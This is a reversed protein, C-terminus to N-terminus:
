RNFLPNWNKDHYLIKISSNPVGHEFAYALMLCYQEAVKNVKIKKKVLLENYFAKVIEPTNEADDCCTSFIESGIPLVESATIKVLPFNEKVAKIGKEHASLPAFVIYNNKSLEDLKIKKAVEIFQSGTGLFDDIFIFTNIGNKINNNIESPDIIWKNDCFKMTKMLRSIAYGSQSTDKNNKIVPVLRINCSKKEKLCNLLDVDGIPPPNNRFIDPISRSFLQFIMAETQPKSRFILNDLICAAFYKEEDTTFNKLWLNIKNKDIGTWIQHTILNNCREKILNIYTEGDSPIKFKTMAAFM